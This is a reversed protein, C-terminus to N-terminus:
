DSNFITALFRCYTVPFNSSLSKVFNMKGTDDNVLEKEGIEEPETMANSTSMLTQLEENEVALRANLEARTVVESESAIRAAEEAKFQLLETEEITLRAEEEAMAEKEAQVAIRVEEDAERMDKAAKENNETMKAAEKRVDQEKKVTAITPDILDETTVEDNATKGSIEAEEIRFELNSKHVEHAEDGVTEEVGAKGAIIKDKRDNAPPGLSKRNEEGSDNDEDCKLETAMQRETEAPFFTKWNFGCYDKNHYGVLASYGGKEISLYKDLGGVEDMMEEEMQKRADEESEVLIPELEVRELEIEKMMMTNMRYGNRLELRLDDIRNRCRPEIHLFSARTMEGEGHGDFPSCKLALAVTRALPVFDKACDCGIVFQCQEKIDDQVNKGWELMGLKVKSEPFKAAALNDICSELIDEERDTMLIKSLSEPAPSEADEGDNPYSPVSSPDSVIGAGIISLIGSVGRGSCNLFSTKSPLLFLHILFLVLKHMCIRSLRGAQICEGEL